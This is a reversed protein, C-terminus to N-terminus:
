PEPPQPEPARVELSAHQRDERPAWWQLHGGAGDGHLVVCRTRADAVMRSAPAVGRVSRRVQNGVLDVLRM